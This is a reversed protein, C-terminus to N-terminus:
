KQKRANEALQQSKLAMSQTLDGKAQADAIQAALSPPTPPTQGEGPVHVGVGAPPTLLLSPDEKAAKTVAAEVQAKFDGQNPDLERLEDMFKISDTLKDANVSQAGAVRLVANEAKTMRTEQQATTLETALAAPDPPETGGNLSALLADYKEAKPRNEKSRTEWKRSNDLATKVEAPTLGEFTTAWDDMGQAPDPDAPPPAAPPTTAPPQGAAPAPPTGPTQQFSGASPPAPPTVQGAPHGERDRRPHRCRQFRHTDPVMSQVAPAVRAPRTTDSM